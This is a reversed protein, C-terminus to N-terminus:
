EHPYQHPPPKTPKLWGARGPKRNKVSDLSTKKIQWVSGFKKAPIRGAKIMALIRRPSVKLIIAAEKTTYLEM